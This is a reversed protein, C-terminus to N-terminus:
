AKSNKPTEVLSHSFIKEPLKHLGLHYLSTSIPALEIVRIKKKGRLGQKNLLELIDPGTDGGSVQYQRLTM